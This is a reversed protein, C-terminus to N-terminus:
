FHFCKFPALNCNLFKNNIMVTPIMAAHLCVHYQRPVSFEIDLVVPLLFFSRQSVESVEFGVRLSM